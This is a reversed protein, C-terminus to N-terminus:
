CRSTAKAKAKAKTKAKTKTKTKGGAPKGLICGGPKAAFQHAMKCLQAGLYARAADPQDQLAIAGKHRCIRRARAFASANLHLGLVAGHTGRIMAYLTPPLGIAESAAAEEASFGLMQSACRAEAAELRACDKGTDALPEDEAAATAFLLPPLGHKRLERNAAAMRVVRALREELADDSDNNGHTNSREPDNRRLRDNQLGEEENLVKALAAEEVDAREVGFRGLLRLLVHEGKLNSPPTKVGGEEEKADAMVCNRFVGV